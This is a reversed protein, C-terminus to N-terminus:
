ARRWTALLVLTVALALPVNLAFVWRWGAVGGLRLGGFLGTVGAGWLPGLVWGLTDAAGIAGVAAARRRPPLLDAALALTVPVLAGGGFGQLMRAAILPVLGRALVCWVSGLAFLGLAVFFVPRRGALDSVRGMVPITVLYALLYGSVIWAYRDIEAANIGLDFVVKPLLTAIVTLDLAAILVAALAAALVPRAGAPLGPEGPAADAPAPAPAPPLKPSSTACSRGPSGAGASPRARPWCSSPAIRARTGPWSRRRSARWGPWCSGARAAWRRGVSLWSTGCRRTRPFRRATRSG